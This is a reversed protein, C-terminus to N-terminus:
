RQRRRALWLLGGGALLVLPVLCSVGIAVLYMAVPAFPRQITRIDFNAPPLEIGDEGQVLWDAANTFFGANGSTTYQLAQNSAFDADGVVVLRADTEADVASVALLLPGPHDAEDFSLEGTAFPNTTEGWSTMEGTPGSVTTALPTHAITSDEAAAYTLSRAVIFFSPRGAELLPQTIPSITSYGDLVVSTLEDFNYQPGTTDIVLDDNVAIGWEDEVYALLPDSAAHGGLVASTEGSELDWIRAEGDRSGTVLFSGDPAFALDWVLSAHGELTVDDAEAARLEVAGGTTAYAFRGEQGAAIATIGAEPFRPTTSAEGSAVEVFGEVGDVSVSHLTEGDPSFAIDLVLGGHLRQNFREEGTAADWLLVSGSQGALGGAAALTAGDPSFAVAWLPATTLLPSYEVPELTEADWVIVAQNEGASAILRGDPSVALASVAATEGEFRGIEEGSEVEWLRVTGDAGASVVREGGPLFAADVADSTHGRLVAVADGSAADWVRVTGDAGATVIRSGDDSVDVGVVGNGFAGGGTAPDSLLMVAGGGQLYADLMEVEQATFQATPGAILLMDADDPVGGAQNLNLEEVAYNLNTLESQLSSYDGAQFGSFSREGHGTVAYIQRRGGLMVRTLASTLEREGLASTQSTREGQEFVLVGLSTVGYQQATAPNREPDVFEYSLRGGSHRAYQELWLEAEDRAISGEPYFAIVNVPEELGELLEVSAESLSYRRSETVDLPSLDLQRLVLYLAVVFAVFVISLLATTLGYQGSRGAVLRRFGAPDILVFGALAAVAVGLAVYSVTTFGGPSVVFAVALVILAIAALGLSAWRLTGRSLPSSTNDAPPTSM